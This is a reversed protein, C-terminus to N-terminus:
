LTANAGKLAMVKQKLMKIKMMFASHDHHAHDDHDHHGHGYGYGYGGGGVMFTKKISNTSLAFLSIFVLSILKM